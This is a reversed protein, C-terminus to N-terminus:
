STAHPIEHGWPFSVMEKQVLLKECTNIGIHKYEYHELM